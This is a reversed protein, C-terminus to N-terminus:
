LPQAQSRPLALDLTRLHQTFYYQSFHLKLLSVANSQTIKMDGDIYYPLQLSPFHLLTCTSPGGSEGVTVSVYHLACRCKALGARTHTECCVLSREILIHLHRAAPLTLWKGDYQEYRIDEFETGTYTLLLRIPQALQPPLCRLADISSRCLIIQWVVIAYYCSSTERAM